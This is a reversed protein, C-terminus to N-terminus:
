QPIVTDQLKRSIGALRGQVTGDLLKGEVEVRIGALVSPDVKQSVSLKKGITKELKEQLACMQEKSLAVASTVVAEAIGNAVNYRRRYEECCGAYEQLIGRDCLLKLFNVLYREAQTGFAEDILEARKEKPISPNSLLSQYEPNERFIGRIQEMQELIVDSLSEEAALDYMSGGYVKATQTM